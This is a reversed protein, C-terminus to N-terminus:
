EETMSLSGEEESIVLTHKKGGLVEPINPKEFEIKLVPSDYTSILKYNTDKEWLKNENFTISVTLLDEDCYNKMLAKFKQINGSKFCEKLEYMRDDNTTDSLTLSGEGEDRQMSYSESFFAFLMLLVYPCMRNM